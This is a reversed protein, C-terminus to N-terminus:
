VQVFIVKGQCNKVVEAACIKICESFEAIIEREEDTLPREARSAGGGTYERMHDLTRFGGRHREFLEQTMAEPVTDMEDTGDVRNSKMTFTGRVIASGDPYDAGLPELMMEMLEYARGYVDASDILDNLRNSGDFMAHGMVWLSFQERVPALSHACIVFGSRDKVQSIDFGLQEAKQLGVEMNMVPSRQGQSWPGKGPTGLVRHKGTISIYQDDTLNGIHPLVYVPYPWYPDRFFSEARKAFLKSAYYGQLRADNANNQGGFFAMPPREDAPKGLYPSVVPDVPGGWSMENILKRLIQIQKKDM